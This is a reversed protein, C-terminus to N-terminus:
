SAAKSGNRAAKQKAARKAPRLYCIACVYFTFSLVIELGGMMASIPSPDSWARVVGEMFYLLILMAAWQLTYLQGKLVGRLPLLLPLVKLVLLSGGPRLPAIKLEWALCLVILAILSVSAGHRLVPNLQTTM